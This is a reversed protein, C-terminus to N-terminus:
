SRKRKKRKKKKAIHKPGRKKPRNSLQSIAELGLLYFSHFKKHHLYRTIYLKFEKKDKNGIFVFEIFAISFDFFENRDTILIKQNNMFELIDVWNIPNVNFKILKKYNNCFEKTSGKLLAFFGQNLYIQIANPKIKRAEETYAIAQPLNDLEYHWRAMNIYQDFNLPHKRIQKELRQLYELAKATNNNHYHKIACDFFLNILITALRGEAIHFPQLKIKFSSKPKLGIKIKTNKPDYIYELISLAEENKDSYIAYFVVYYIIINHINNLYKKKDLGSNQTEYIWDRSSVLLSMDQTLDITDNFVKKNLSNSKNRFTVSFKEVIIKEVSNYNGSEIFIRIILDYMFGFNEHYRNIQSEEECFNTPLVKLHINDFATNHNVKKLVKKVIKNIVLKEKEDEVIVIIGARIKNTEKLRLFFLNNSYAWIFVLIFSLLVSIVLGIIFPGPFLSIDYPLKSISWLCFLWFMLLSLLLGSKKGWLDILRDWFNIIDLSIM